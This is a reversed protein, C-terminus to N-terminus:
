GDASGDDPEAGCGSIALAKVLETALRAHGGPGFHLGDRYPLAFDECLREAMGCSLLQEGDIVHDTLGRRRSERIWRNLTLTNQWRHPTFYRKFGGWPTVTMAIVRAGRARAARYMLELDAEIKAVTRKATLDSYLDNVGGFIVVHSYTGRTEAFHSLLRARIQNVMAGGKGLNTVQCECRERAENLYRGGGSKPDTLSDGVALLRCRKAQAPGSRRDVLSM